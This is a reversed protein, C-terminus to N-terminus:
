PLVGNSPVPPPSVGPATTCCSCQGSFPPHTCNLSVESTARTPAPLEPAPEPYLAFLRVELKAVVDDLGLRKASAIANLIPTGEDVEESAKRRGGLLAGLERLITAGFNEAMPSPALTSNGGYTSMYPGAMNSVPFGGIVPDSNEHLHLARPDQSVALLQRMTRTASELDLLSRATLPPELIALLRARLAENLDPVGPKKIRIRRDSM